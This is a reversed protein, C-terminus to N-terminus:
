EAKELEVGAASFMAQTATEMAQRVPDISLRAYISTSAMDKHNLTKGIVALNAGTSAQWSGLSRRLDHLRLDEIQARELLKKWANKPEMWYGTQSRSPFVFTHASELQLRRRLIAVAESVLPLRQSTGNKTLPITWIGGPLDLDVRRMGLVNSKRAGTLLSLLVYDRLAENPEEALAQFFRPLEDAQLFRERAREPFKKVKAAPNPHEWGWEAAKNFLSQLLMLLRNAAYKGHEQGIRSHLAQLDAKRLSSLKRERWDLLYRQYQAEDERWSRKHLKAYQELYIAFFEGLTWEARALRKKENPNEGRAIAANAEHALARAEELSLEPFRGLTIREPKGHIKRYVIFSKTGKPTISLGLGPTKADYYYARKGVPPAPLKNLLPKTFNFRTDNM